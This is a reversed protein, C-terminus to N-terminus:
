ARATAQASDPLVRRLERRSTIDLKTFVKRLHWEVTRPSLFLQAGIEPNTHGDRALRAIQAEQATLAVPMVPVPTHPTEGTALLERRAQEAFAEAGFRAFMVHARRLQDGAELRRNERRLWEGYVLHARALHVVIRTRALRAIAEQYLAEAAAGDSLLARSRAHIGLAWDTGAARCQEGLRQQADAAVDPRGSRVGAEVLETLVWGILNLDDHESAQRAAALAADYRGLGNNLLATSYEALTLVRGEGRASADRIGAQTREATEAERGRWAALLMATYMIPANGTAKNIAEAEDILAAAAAFEGAHVHLDARWNTALPLVTLAGAERALRVERTSLELWAADDWVEPAARAALWLWRGDVETGGDGRRYADLARQLAAVGAAYGGTFRSTLGDLLL